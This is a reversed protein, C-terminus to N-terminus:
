RLNRMLVVDRTEAGRTFAFQKGDPSWDYAFLKEEPLGPLRQPAGGKMDQRWIGNAADRYCIAQGDPTWRIGDYFNASPPAEFLKVLSGGALMKLGRKRIETSSPIHESTNM